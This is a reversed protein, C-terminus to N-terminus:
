KKWGSEKILYFLLDKVIIDAYYKESKRLNFLKMEERVKNNEILYNLKNKLDNLDKSKFVMGNKENEVIEENYNNDSCLIPRGAIFADILVGPFGEGEYYTPFIFLDYESLKESVENNDIVGKYEAFSYKELESLLEQEYNERIPGYIDYDINIGLEKRLEEIPQLPLTVGKTKKISSLFVCKFNSTNSHSINDYNTLNPQSREKFNPLYIVNNFGFNNELNRKLKKSEVFLGDSYSIAKKFIKKSLFNKQELENALEGGMPILIYKFRKNFFKKFYIIPYLIRRGNKSTAVIYYNSENFFLSKLLNIVQVLKGPKLTNIVELTVNKHALEQILTKNKIGPGSDPPSVPGILTWKM